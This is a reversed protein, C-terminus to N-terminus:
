AMHTICMTKYLQLWDQAEVKAQGDVLGEAEITAQSAMLSQAQDKAKGDVLNDVAVKIVM